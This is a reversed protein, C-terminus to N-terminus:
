VYRKEMYLKEAEKLWIGNKTTLYKKYYTFVNPSVERFDYLPKGHANDRRTLDGRRYYPSAGNFMSGADPGIIRFKVRCDVGDFWAVAVARENTVKGDADLMFPALPSGQVELARKTVEV